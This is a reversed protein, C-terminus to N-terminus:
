IGDFSFVVRGGFRPTPGGGSRSRSHCSSCRWLRMVLSRCNRFGDGRAFCACFKRQSQSGGIGIGSGSKPGPRPLAAPLVRLSLFPM